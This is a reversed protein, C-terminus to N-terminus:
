TPRGSPRGDFPPTVFGLVGVGQCDLTRPDNLDFGGFHWLLGDGFAVQERGWLGLAYHHYWIRMNGIDDGGIGTFRGDVHGYGAAVFSFFAAYLAFTPTDTTTIGVDMIDLGDKIRNKVYGQVGNWGPASGEWRTCGPLEALVVALVLGPIVWRRVM